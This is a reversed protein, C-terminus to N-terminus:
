GHADEVDLCATHSQQEKCSRLLFALAKIRLSYPTPPPMWWFPLTGACVASSAADSGKKPMKPAYLGLVPTVAPKAACAHWSHKAM